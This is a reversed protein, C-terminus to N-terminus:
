FRVTGSLLVTAPPCELFPLIDSRRNLLNEGRLGLDLHRSVKYAASFHLDSSNHLDIYEAGAGPILQRGYVYVRRHTRLTYGLGLSLKELPQAKAEVKVIYKARDMNDASGKDEGTSNLRVSADVSLGFRRATYGASVEGWINEMDYGAMATEQYAPVYAAMIMDECKSYGGRLGIRFGTQGGGRLGIEADLPTRNVDEVAHLSILPSYNFARRYSNFATSGGAKAYATFLSNPRWTLNASPAVGFKHSGTGSAADLRAGLRLSLAGGDFLLAPTFSFIGAGYMRGYELGLAGGWRGDDSRLAGDLKLDALTGYLHDLTLRGGYEYRGATRTISGDVIASNRHIWSSALASRAAVHDYAARVNIRHGLVNQIFQGSFGAVNSRVDTKEGAAHNHYNMGYFHAEGGLFTRRSDVLRLGGQLALRYVPGYAATAYCRYPSKAPLGDALYATATDPLAGFLVPGGFEEPSLTNDAVSPRLVDPKVTPLPSASSLEPHVTRDVTIETSLVQAHAGTAAFTLIATLLLGKYRKSEM